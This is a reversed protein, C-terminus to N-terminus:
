EGEEYGLRQMVLHHAAYLKAQQHRDLEVFGQGSRGFRFFRTTANHPRERFGNAREQEQLREFRCAQVARDVRQVDTEWDLFVLIRILAAVPDALLDEFKVLLVPMCPQDLWSAVHGSWSGLRQPLQTSHRDDRNAAIFDTQCLRDVSEQLSIAAHASLSAAVDVPHRVVYIAGRSVDAPFLPQGDSTRSWADHVKILLNTTASSARWRYFDSRLTEVDAPTLESASVGVWTEFPVRASAIPGGDLRDLLVSADPQQYATLLARVWTNGSKPYSALWTISGSV